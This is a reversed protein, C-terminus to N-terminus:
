QYIWSITSKFHVYLFTLTVRLTSQMLHIKPSRSRKLYLTATGTIKFGFRTQFQKEIRVELQFNIFVTVSSTTSGCLYSYHM